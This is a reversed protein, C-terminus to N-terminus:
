LYSKRAGCFFFLLLSFSIIAISVMGPYSPLNGEGGGLGTAFVVHKVRFRREAHSLAVVVDWTGADNPHASTVTASTWVDLEM